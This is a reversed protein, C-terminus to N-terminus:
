KVIMSPDGFLIWTRRVDADGVALKANNTIEGLTLPAQASKGKAPANTQFLTTYFQQNMVSQGSPATMGSSAWVAIAGGERSNMLATALPNLQPQQFEGNLCTMAIFLPYRGTNTLALADAATLLNDRWISPSGHGVYNVIKQGGAIGDFLQQRATATGVQGRDIKQVTISGPFLAAISNNAAEFDFDLNADAVLLASNLAASNDYVALKTVTTQAEESTPTPLRGVAMEAIGDLDFDAFWDDSATETALTDILKTPVLDYAGFGNYNKPDYSASGALLVYRPATKWNTKAYALFDKIAQPSKNGFNFEDYLDEVDVLAVKLGQSRRLAQLQAYSDKLSEHTIIVLDAANGSTRWTSPKDLIVSVPSRTQDVGIALLTRTGTGPVVVTVVSAPSSKQATVAASVQTPTLPNTVDLIKVEASTFGTLTVEQNATASFKLANGEAAYTHFYSVQIHDVLSVDTGGTQSALTVLNQGESLLSNPVQFQSVGQAQNTYEITGLSSGNLSVTVVHPGNTFGQMGIEITAQGAATADINKLTIAQDVSAAGVPTGFFNEADGNHVGTLYYLRDKREVAYVFSNSPPLGGQGQVNQIRLGNSGVTLSYVHTDTSPTDIGQGYFEIASTSDFSGNNTIVSIPIEKNDAFLQLANPDVSSNFGAAVLQPQTVRYWGEQKVSIKVTPNLPNIPLKPSVAASTLTMASALKATKAQARSALSQVPHTVGNYTSEAAMDSLTVTQDAITRERASMRADSSQSIIPGHWVTYGSLDIEEIWLAAGKAQDASTQWAYSRGASMVTGPSAMLGSGVILSKNIRVRKGDEERYINFGLNNVERGTEWQLLTKGDRGARAAYGVMEVATPGTPGAITWPSFATIGTKEVWNNGADRTTAGQSGWTGSKRWLELTAETNGNLEADLYHLRVVASLSGAGPTLTYTRRVSNGFDVPSSKVLNVTLTTAAGSNTIQNNPNGFSRTTAGVDTRQVTGIVDGNGASTGSQTLTATATLNSTLTLIATVSGATNLTTTGAGTNAITLGHFATSASGGITQATGGNFTFDIVDNTASVATFTGNNTFNGGVNLTHIRNGPGGAIISGDNVVNGTVTLSDIANDNLRLTGTSNITLSAISLPSVNVYDIQTGAGIIVTDGNVPAGDPSWNNHVGWNGSSVSTRTTANAAGPSALFMGAVFLSLVVSLRIMTARANARTGSVQEPKAGLMRVIRNEFYVKVRNM